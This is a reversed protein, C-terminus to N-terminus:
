KLFTSTPICYVADEYQANITEAIQAANDSSSCLAFLTPGSGSMGAFEAGAEILSERLIGMIPFKAFVAPQLDNVFLTSIKDLDGKQLANICDDLSSKNNESANNQYGWVASVPFQPNLIVLFMQSIDALPTLIDGTGQASAPIPNLFFPVDAGLSSAIDFLIEDSLRSYMQNLIKLVAAADSSGGGLGASVPINKEIHISWASDLEAFKAFEMAAKYCINHENLPISDDSSTIELNDGPNRKTISVEDFPEHLPLFITDIDHYGDPRKGTIKLFLNIKAPTSINM